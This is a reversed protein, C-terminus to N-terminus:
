SGAVGPVAVLGGDGSALWDLVDQSAFRAGVGRVSPAESAFLDLDAGLVLADLQPLTLDDSLECRQERTDSIGLALVSASRALLADSRASADDLAQDVVQRRPLAQAVCDWVRVAESLEPSEQAEANDSPLPSSSPAVAPPDETPFSWGRWGQGDALMAQSLRADLATLRDAGADLAVGYASALAQASALRGTAVAALTRADPGPVDTDEAAALDRRATAALWSALVAPDMPADAVPEPPTAGEPTAGGWPEWLGGLAQVRADSDAALATLGAQCAACSTAKASLARAQAAAAADSRVATDRALATGTLSPLAGPAAQLHVGCGTLTGAAAAGVLVALSARTLTRSRRRARPPRPLPLPSSSAIM